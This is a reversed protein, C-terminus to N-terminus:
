KSIAIIAKRIRNLNDRIGELSFLLIKKKGAEREREIFLLTLVYRLLSFAGGTSSKHSTKKKVKM